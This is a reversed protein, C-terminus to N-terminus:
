GCIDDSNDIWTDNARDARTDDFIAAILEPVGNASFFILEYLKFCLDFM